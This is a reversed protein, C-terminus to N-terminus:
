DRLSWVPARAEASAIEPGATAGGRLGWDAGESRPEAAVPRAPSPPPTASGRLGAGSAMWAECRTLTFAEELAALTRRHEEAEVRPGRRAAGPEREEMVSLPRTWGARDVALDVAFRRRGDGADGDLVLRVGDPRATWEVIQFAPQRWAGNVFTFGRPDVRFRVQGEACGVNRAPLIPRGGRWIWEGTLPFDRASRVPAAPSPSPLPRAVAVAVAGPGAAASAAPRKAADKPAPPVSAESSCGALASALLLPALRSMPPSPFRPRHVAM